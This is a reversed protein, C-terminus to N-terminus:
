FVLEANVSFSESVCSEEDEDVVERFVDTSGPIQAGYPGAPASGFM